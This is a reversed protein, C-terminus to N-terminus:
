VMPTVGLLAGRERRGRLSDKPRYVCACGAWEHGIKIFSKLFGSVYAFLM